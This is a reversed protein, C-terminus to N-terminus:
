KKAPPKYAKRLKAATHRVHTIEEQTFLRTLKV